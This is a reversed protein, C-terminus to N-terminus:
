SSEQTTGMIKDFDPDCQRKWSLYKGGVRMTNLLNVIDDVSLYDEEEESELWTQASLLHLETFVHVFHKRLEDNATGDRDMMKTIEDELITTLKKVFYADGFRRDLLGIMADRHERCFCFWELFMPPPSYNFKTLFSEAPWNVYGDNRCQAYRNKLDELLSQELREMLDYIDGFYQYFTGRTIEAAKCIEIVSIRDWPKSRMLTLFCAVIHRKTQESKATKRTTGGDRAM